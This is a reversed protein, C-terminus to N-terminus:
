PEEESADVAAGTPPQGRAENCAASERQPLRGHEGENEEECSGHQASVSPPAPQQEAAEEAGPEVEAQVLEREAIGEEHATGARRIVKGEVGQVLAEGEVEEAQEHQHGPPEEEAEGVSSSASGFDHERDCREEEEVKELRVPHACAAEHLAEDDRQAVEVGQERHQRDGHRLGNGTEQCGCDSRVGGALAQHTPHGSEPDGCHEGDGEEDV